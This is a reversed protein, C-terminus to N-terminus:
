LGVRYIDHLRLLGLCRGESDVVPLLSIQSPRDEMRRLAELLRAEPHITVPRRTMLNAARLGRIDDHAQLARRLDGDTILGELRRDPGAVCAAGLPRATMAIVVDKLSDEPRAWAIEDERHMAEAVCVRLNRGLQGAPHYRGFQEPTFGRAEMLAVTLAHGVGLAVVVSATPVLNHPDAEREVSADLVVDMEAGLPSAPNGLIGILPSRFERLSPVLRLLEVSAGSKSFILTPDGPSCVGLDGHMAEAPHLFVAPTGTSRLTAVIKRAIHGSKGIGTVVTKGPHGSIIEVARALNRDLRAAAAGLARAEIELARRAAALWQEPGNM